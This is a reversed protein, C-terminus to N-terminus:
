ISSDGMPFEMIEFSLPLKNGGKRLSLGDRRTM